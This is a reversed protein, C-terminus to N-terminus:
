ISNIMKKRKRMRGGSSAGRGRGDRGGSRSGGAVGNSGNDVVENKIEENNTDFKDTSDSTSKSLSPVEASSKCKWVAKQWASGKEEKTKLKSVDVFRSCNMLSQYKEPLIDGNGTCPAGGDRNDIISGFCGNGGFLNHHKPLAAVKPNIFVLLRHRLHQADTESKAGNDAQQRALQTLDISYKFGQAELRNRWWWEEHVEVHHWGGWASSTVFLLAAKHLTPLYNNM